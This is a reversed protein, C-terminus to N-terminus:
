NIILENWGFIKGDLTSCFTFDPLSFFFTSLLSSLFLFIPMSEDGWMGNEPKVGNILVCRTPQLKSHAYMTTRGNMLCKRDRKKKEKKCQAESVLVQKSAVNIPNRHRAVSEYNIVEGEGGTDAICRSSM